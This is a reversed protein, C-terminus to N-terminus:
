LRLKVLNLMHVPGDDPLRRFEGFTERTPDVHGAM